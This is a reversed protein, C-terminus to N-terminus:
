RSGGVAGRSDPFPLGESDPEVVQIVVGARIAAAVTPGATAAEVDARWGLLKAMVRCQEGHAAIVALVVDTDFDELAQRPNCVLLTLQPGDWRTEALARGELVAREMVKAMRRGIAKAVYELRYTDSPGRGGFVILETIQDDLSPRQTIGETM